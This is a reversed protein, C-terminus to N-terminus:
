VDVFFFLFSEFLARPIEGCTKKLSNKRPQRKQEPYRDVVRPVSQLSGHFL